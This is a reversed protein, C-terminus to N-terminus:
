EDEMEFYFQFNFDCVATINEQYIRYMTDELESPAYNVNVYVSLFGTESGPEYDFSTTITNHLSVSSEDDEYLNAHSSELSSLYSIKFYVKEDESMTESKDIFDPYYMKHDDGDTFAPNSDLLDNEMYLDFDTCSSLFLENDAKVKDLIKSVAADMKVDTLNITSITFKYIANCNLDKVGYGFLQLEVPDYTNMMSVQHWIGEETYGFQKKVKDYNYKVVNGSEPNFYDVVESTGYHHVYYNFKYLEISYLDCTGLNVVAFTSPDLSSNMKLSFWSFVGGCVALLSFIAVSCAAIIKINKKGITKM